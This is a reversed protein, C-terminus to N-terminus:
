KYDHKLGKNNKLAKNTERAQKGNTIRYQRGTETMLYYVGKYTSYIFLVPFMVLMLLGWQSQDVCYAVFTAVLVIAVIQLCQYIDTNM